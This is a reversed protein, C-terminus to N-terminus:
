SAEFLQSLRQHLRIKQKIWRYVSNVTTHMVKAFEAVSIFRESARAGLMKMKM